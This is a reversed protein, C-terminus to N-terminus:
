DDTDPFRCRRHITTLEERRSILRETPPRFIAPRAASVAANSCSLVLLELAPIDAPLDALRQTVQEASVARTM